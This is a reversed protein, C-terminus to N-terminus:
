SEEISIELPLSNLFSDALVVFCEIRVATAIINQVNM